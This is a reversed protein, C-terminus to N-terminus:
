EEVAEKVRTMARDLLGKSFVSKRKGSSASVSFSSNYLPTSRLLPTSAVTLLKLSMGVDVSHGLDVVCTYKWIHLLLGEFGIGVLWM